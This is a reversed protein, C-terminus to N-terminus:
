GHKELFHAVRDRLAEGLDVGLCTALTCLMLYVDGLEKALAAEKPNNRVYNKGYGYGRRLLVDGVEGVETVLFVFSDLADPHPWKDGIAVRLAAVQQQGKHAMMEADETLAAQHAVQAWREELGEDVVSLDRLINTMAKEKLTVEDGCFEDRMSVLIGARCLFALILARFSEDDLDLADVTGWTGDAKVARVLVQRRKM